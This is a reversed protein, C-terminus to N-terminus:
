EKSLDPYEKRLWSLVTIATQLHWQVMSNTFASNDVIEHNEDPGIVNKLDYCNRDGNWEVCSAWFNATDLVIEAGYDCMWDDDETAQWYQWIAYAIDSNIHLERDGCWIRILEGSRTPVWRPTVEEGTVASEWAYMAGAFGAEKAKQRAGPLTHYRYTLLNRAL